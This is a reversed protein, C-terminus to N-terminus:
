LFKVFKVESVECGFKTAFKKAAQKSTAIVSRCGRVYRGTNADYKKFHVDYEAKQEM